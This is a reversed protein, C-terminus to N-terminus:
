PHGITIIPVGVSLGGAAGSVSGPATAPSGPPSARVRAVAGGAAAGAVILAAIVWKRGSHHAPKVGPQVTPQVTPRVALQVTPQVTPRVALQVTPQVSAPRTSAVPPAPVMVPIVAPTTGKADSVYQTSIIGARAQDKAATIRIQFSGANHNLQFGRVTARGATDSIVVDTRLGNFFIGSPGQEPFHFSVAAGVVPHGTEDTVEVILPKVARGGSAHVAGEGEVVKLQVTAVQAGIVAPLALVLARALSAVRM